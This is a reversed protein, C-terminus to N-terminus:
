YRVSRTIGDQLRTICQRKEATFKGQNLPSNDACARILM